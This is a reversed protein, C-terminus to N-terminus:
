TSRRALERYLQVKRLDIVGASMDYIPAPGYSEKMSEVLDPLNDSVREAVDALTEKVAPWPLDVSRALLHWDAAQVNRSDWTRGIKMSLKRELTKYVSTSVIDYFPALRIGDRGYLLALNKAHADENGILYNFGIWRVLHDLDIIPASSFRLITQACQKIGPGGDHEYKHSPDVALAQCLDEQHLRFVVDGEAPRDFRRTTFVRVNEMALGASAVELGVADGLSTCLLENELLNNFQVTSQKLIHSTIAGNRPLWWGEADRYLAIKEQAGALSLRGRSLAAAMEQRDDTAFLGEIETHSIAQYEPPTSPREGQPWISVAGPCEGGIAGLLSLDNELAVGTATAVLRRYSQEPLLNRFFPGAKSDPYPAEQKPLSLSIPM